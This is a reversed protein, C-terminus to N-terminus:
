TFNKGFDKSVRRPSISSNRGPVDLHTSNHNLAVTSFTKEDENCTVVSKKKTNFSRKRVKPLKSLSASQAM